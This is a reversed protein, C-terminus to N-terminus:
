MPPPSPAATASAAPASAAGGGRSYVLKSKGGDCSGVVKQEAGVKDAAVVELKYGKVGKADLKATIEAGVEECPTGAFLPASVLLIGVAIVIRKM